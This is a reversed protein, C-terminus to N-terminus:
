RDAFAGHKDPPKHCRGPQCILFDGNCQDCYPALTGIRSRNMFTAARDFVISGAGTWRSLTLRPVENGAYTKTKPKISLFM